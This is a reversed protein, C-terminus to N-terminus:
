GFIQVGFVAQIVLLLVYVILGVISIAAISTSLWFATRGFKTFCEFIANIANFIALFINAVCYPITLLALMLMMMFLGYSRDKYDKKEEAPVDEYTVTKKGTTNDKNVVRRRKKGVLHSLDFELIPRFAKYFQENRATRKALEEAEDKYTISRSSHKLSKAANAVLEKNVDPNEVAKVISIGNVFQKLGEDVTISGKQVQSTINQIISEKFLAISKSEETITPLNESNEEEIKEDELIETNSDEINDEKEKVSLLKDLEKDELM